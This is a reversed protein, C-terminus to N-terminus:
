RQVPCVDAGSWRQITFHDSEGFHTSWWNRWMVNANEYNPWTIAFDAKGDGDYDGPAPDAISVGGERGLFYYSSQQQHNRSSYLLHWGCVYPKGMFSPASKAFVAPDTKRDGDYDAPSAVLPDDGKTDVYFTQPSYDLSSRAVLFQGTTRRFVAPDSCGDGDYDGALPTDGPCGFLAAVEAHGLQSLMVRWQGTRRCYITPDSIRDGDFDGTIATWDAGGFALFWPEQYYNYSFLFIWWGVNINYLVVDTLGDGDYDSVIPTWDPAGWEFSRLTFGSGSLMIHWEGTPKDYVAPDMKGDGDFDGNHNINAAMLAASPLILCLAAVINSQLQRVRTPRNPVAM